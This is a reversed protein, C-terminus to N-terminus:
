SARRLEEAMGWLVARCEDMGEDTLRYGQGPEFDIAESNLAQRLKVLHHNIVTSATSGTARAIDSALQPAPAKNYLEMLVFSSARELGFWHSFAVRGCTDIPIYHHGTFM